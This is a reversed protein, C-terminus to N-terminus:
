HLRLKIDTWNLEMNSNHLQKNHKQLLQYKKVLCPFVLDSIVTSIEPSEYTDGAHAAFTARLQFAPLEDM